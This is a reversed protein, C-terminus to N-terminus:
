KYGKLILFVLANPDFWKTEYVPDGPGTWMRIGCISKKLWLSKGTIDCRRPWYSRTDKLSARSLWTDWHIGNDTYGAGMM